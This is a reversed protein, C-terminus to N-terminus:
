NVRVGGFRVDLRRRMAEEHELLAMHIELDIGSRLGRLCEEFSWVQAKLDDVKSRLEFVFRLLTNKSHIKRIEADTFKMSAGVFFKSRKSVAKKSVAKQSTAKQSAAKKRGAGRVRAGKARGGATKGVNRVGVQECDEQVFGCASAVTVERSAVGPAGGDSLVCAGSAMTASTSAHFDNSVVGGSLPFQNVGSSEYTGLNGHIEASVVGGTMTGLVPGGLFDNVGDNVVVSDSSSGEGASVGFAAVNIVGLDHMTDSFALNCGNAVDTTLIDKPFDQSSGFLGLLNFEDGSGGSGPCQNFNAMASFCLLFGCYNLVTLNLLISLHLFHLPIVSGWGPVAM